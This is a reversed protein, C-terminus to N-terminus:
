ALTAPDVHVEVSKTRFGDARPTVAASQKRVGAPVAGAVVVRGKISAGEACAAVLWALVGLAAVLRLSPRGFVGRGAVSEAM